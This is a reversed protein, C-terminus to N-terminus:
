ADKEGRRWKEITELVAAAAADPWCERCTTIAHDLHGRTHWSKKGVIRLSQDGRAMDPLVAVIETTTPSRYVHHVSWGASRLADAARMMAAKMSLRKM